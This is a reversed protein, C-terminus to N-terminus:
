RWWESPRALLLQLRHQVLPSTTGTDPIGTGDATRRRQGLFEGGQRDLLEHQQTGGGDCTIRELRIECRRDGLQGEDSPRSARSAQQREIQKDSM